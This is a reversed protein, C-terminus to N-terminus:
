NQGAPRRVAVCEIEYHLTEPLCHTITTRAPYPPQFYDRYLQNFLPVHRPDRVYNRTQIVLSLDSGADELIAKLNELSRRFESEFDGPVINGSKDVSAQGSVFILDGYVVAPSFPLHSRPTNKAVPYELPNM